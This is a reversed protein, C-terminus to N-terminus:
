LTFELFLWLTLPNTGSQTQGQQVSAVSTTYKKFTGMTIAVATLPLSESCKGSGSFNLGSLHHLFLSSGGFGKMDRGNPNPLLIHIPLFLQLATIINSTNLCHRSQTKRVAM